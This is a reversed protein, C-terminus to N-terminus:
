TGASRASGSSGESGLPVRAVAEYVPAPRALRSRFLTVAKVSFVVPSVDLDVLTRLDAPTRLRAITLHATWPRSEPTFGLPELARACDGALRALEGGEDTLGVWVVRGRRPTPFAGAGALATPIPAHKSAARGLAAEISGVLEEVVEGLFVLTVHLNDRGVWKADPAFSRAADIVRSLEDKVAAPLEVAVFLRM